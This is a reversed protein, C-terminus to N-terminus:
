LFDHKRGRKRDYNRRQRGIYLISVKDGKTKKGFTLFVMQQGLKDTYEWIKQEGLRFSTAAQGFVTKLIGETNACFNWVGEKQYLSIKEAQVQEETIYIEFSPLEESLTWEQCGEATVIMLIQKM